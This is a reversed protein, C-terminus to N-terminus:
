ENRAKADRRQAVSGRMKPHEEEEVEVISLLNQIKEIRGKCAFYRQQRGEADWWRDFEEATHSQHYLEMSVLLQTMEERLEAIEDQYMKYDFQSIIM